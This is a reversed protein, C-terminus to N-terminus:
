PTNFVSLNRCTMCSSVVHHLLREFEALRNGSDQSEVSGWLAHACENESSFSLWFRRFLVALSTRGALGLLLQQPVKFQMEKM